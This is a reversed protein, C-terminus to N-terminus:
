PWRWGMQGEARKGPAGPSPARVKALTEAQKPSLDGVRGSMISPSAPPTPAVAPLPWTQDTGRVWSPRKGGSRPTAEPVEEKALRQIACQMVPILHPGTNPQPVPRLPLPVQCPTGSTVQWTCSAPLSHGQGGMLAWPVGMLTGLGGPAVARSFVPIESPTLSSGAPM